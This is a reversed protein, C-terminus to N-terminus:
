SKSTVPEEPLEMGHYALFERYGEAGMYRTLIGSETRTLDVYILGDVCDGFTPDVNFGLIRAGLKLYHKLLIPVGQHEEEIEAIIKSLDKLDDVVVSAQAMDIPRAHSGNRRTPDNRMPNRPRILRSYDAEHNNAALFAAMLERSVSRYRSSISVPGFLVRYEPHLRVYQAIAKWLLFLATHSRQRDFRVFSRGFELSPGLEQFLRPKIRFLTATYLGKVGRRPLIQDTRGMRYAGIIERQESNYLVLHLYDDDFPDLDCEAGTGEGVARFAEERLRGIERLTVPIESALAYFVACRGQRSLCRDDSLLALEREILEPEQPDIIPVSSAAGSEGITIEAHGRLPDQASDVPKAGRLIDTRLRYYATLRWPEELKAVADFPIPNGVRFTIERRRRRLLERPLLATRLAPNIVGLLQFLNSNRGDFFVPVVTAEAARVLRAVNESWGPDVVARRRLHLHSVEGSPFMGLCAAGRLHRLCSRMAAFNARTSSSRGFPDVFFMLEALPRVRALLYNALVKADPRRSLLMDLLVLGELGGYPHNAVVVVPGTEPIRELSGWSCSWSVDLDRLVEHVFERGGGGAGRCREYIRELEQLGLLREATGFMGRAISRGGDPRISFPRPEPQTQQKM